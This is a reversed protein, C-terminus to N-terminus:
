FVHLYKFKEKRKMENKTIANNFLYIIFLNFQFTKRRTRGSTFPSSLQMACSGLPLVSFIFSMLTHGRTDNMMVMITIAIMMTMTMTMMMMM